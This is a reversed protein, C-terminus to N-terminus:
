KTAECLFKTQKAFLNKNIHRVSAVQLMREFVLSLFYIPANDFTDTM